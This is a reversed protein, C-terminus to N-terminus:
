ATVLLTQAPESPALSYGGVSATCRCAALVSLHQRASPLEISMLCVRQQAHGCLAVAADSGWRQAGHPQLYQVAALRCLHEPLGRQMTDMIQVAEEEGLDAAKYVGESLLLAPFMDQQGAPMPILMQATMNFCVSEAPIVLLFVVNVPSAISMYPDPGFLIVGGPFLFGPGQVKQHSLSRRRPETSQRPMRAALLRRVAQHQSHQPIAHMPASVTDSVLMTTHFASM